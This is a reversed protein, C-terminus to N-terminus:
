AGVYREQGNFDGAGDIYAALGHPREIEQASFVLWRLAQPRGSPARAVAVRWFADFVLGQWPQLPHRWTCVDNASGVGALVARFSRRQGEPVFSTISRGVLNKESAGLLTAAIASAQRITGELSTVLYGTPVHQFLDQYHAYGQELAIQEVQQEADHAQLRLEATQLADISVDLAELARSLLEDSRGSTACLQYLTRARERLM